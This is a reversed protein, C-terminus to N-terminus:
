REGLIEANAAELRAEQCQILQWILAVTTAKDLPRQRNSKRQVDSLLRHLQPVTFTM